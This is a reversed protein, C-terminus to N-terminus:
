LRCRRDLWWRVTWGIYVLKPARRPVQQVRHSCVIRFSWRESLLNLRLLEDIEEALHIRTPYTGIVESRPHFFAILRSYAVSFLKTPPHAFRMIRDVDLKPLVLEVAISPFLPPPRSPFIPATISSTERHVHDKLHMTIACPSCEGRLLTQKVCLESLLCGQCSHRLTMGSPLLSISHLSGGLNSPAQQSRHLICM